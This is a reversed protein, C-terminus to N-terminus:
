KEMWNPSLLPILDEEKTRAMVTHGRPIRGTGLSVAQAYISGFARSLTICFRDGDEDSECAITPGSPSALAQSASRPSATDTPQLGTSLSIKCDVVEFVQDLLITSRDASKSCVSARAM